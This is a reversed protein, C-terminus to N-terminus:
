LERAALQVESMGSLVQGFEDDDDETDFGDPSQLTHTGILSGFM